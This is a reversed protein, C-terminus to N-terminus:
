YPEGSRHVFRRRGGPRQRLEMDIDPYAVEDRNPMRTGVELYIVTRDTKNVLHHGDRAGAAFGAAMGPGLVQEGADTVLTAEGDLVYVFEDEHSHWHRQSSWSGPPLEVLNVGFQDLGLADGLARKARGAVAQRFPEPYSSGTRVQVTRPDLAPRRLGETV